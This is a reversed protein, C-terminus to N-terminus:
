KLDFTFTNAKLNTAASGSWIEFGAFVDTLYWSNSFAQSTGGATKDAAANTVADNILAKMDFTITSLTSKAVYTIVPRGSDDTGVSTTGRPGIWVDFTTGGITATRKISGIPSRSSPKYLWVMLFGSIADEYTGATPANKSFWIDYCSNYDGGSTGGSWTFTTNASAIASNLKPLGTNAWTSYTGGAIDGNAGVFLSPFSAPVGGGTSNGSSSKVTFSNGVFDIVQTSGTKNGWNNNQVVYQKCDAGTIKSRQMSAAESATTSGLTGTQKGCVVTGGAPADAISNGPAFGNVTFDFPKATLAGSILFVVASIPKTKDYYTGLPNTTSGATGWCKTNFKDLAAYTPGGADTVNFCWRDNEDTAGKPGQIQIRILTSSGQTWNVAIGDKGSPWTVGPTTATSSPNYACQASNGTIAESLNFGLLAVSEYTPNVTGTVKYPGGDAVATFDKPTITTTTAAVKDIGTWVCGHWDASTVGWDATYFYGKPREGAPLTSGVVTTGGTAASGGRAASTGGTAASGGKATSGGAAATTAGGSGVVPSTTAIVATAGGVGAAGGVGVVPNAVCVSAKCSSGAGCPIGCSGCNASDTTVDACGSPCTALPATCTMGCVGANCFPATTPCVNGCMGCNSASTAPNVCAGNCTANPAVCAAAVAVCAGASCTTGAGCAAGCVGCNTPDNLTDACYTGCNTLVPNACSATTSTSSSCGTLAALVFATAWRVYNSIAM